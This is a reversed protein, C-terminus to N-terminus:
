AVCQAVAKPSMLGTGLPPLREIEAMVETDSWTAREAVLEQVIQQPRKVSTM